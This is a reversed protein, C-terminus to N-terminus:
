AGIVMFSRLHVSLVSGCGDLSSHLQYALSEELSESVMKM